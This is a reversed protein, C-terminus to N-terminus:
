GASCAAGESLWCTYCSCLSLGWSMSRSVLLSGALGHHSRTSGGDTVGPPQLGALPSTDKSEGAARSPQTSLSHPHERLSRPQNGQQMPPHRAKDRQGLM